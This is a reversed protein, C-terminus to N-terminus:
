LVNFNLRYHDPMAITTGDMSKTARDRLKWHKRSLNELRDGAMTVMAALRQVLTLPLRKRAKCYPAGSVSFRWARM